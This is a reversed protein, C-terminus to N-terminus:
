DPIYLDSIERYESRGDPFTRQIVLPIVREYLEKRAIELTDVDGDVDVRPIAGNKLQIDRFGILRTFEYKTMYPKTIKNSILDDHDVDELKVIEINDSM